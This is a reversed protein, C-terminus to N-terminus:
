QKPTRIFVTKALGKELSVIDEQSLFSDFILELRSDQRWAIDTLRVKGEVWNLQQWENGTKILGKARVLPKNNILSNLWDLFHSRHFQLQAEFVWGLASTQGLRMESRTCLPLSSTFAQAHGEMEQNHEDLGALLYFPQQTQKFDVLSPLDEITSTDNLNTFFIKEKPPYISDLLMSSIKLNESYTLDIKNVILTDALTVIDRMIASKQWREPTLHQATVLAIIGAIEVQEDFPPQKLLDIIKAPHGLGTPEILIRDVKQALLTSLAQQYGHFATCCLCGGSVEVIPTEDHETTQLSSADIGIEGFDNILIGWSQNQPKHDLLYQLFTTKGSGLLGTILNIPTKTRDPNFTKAM